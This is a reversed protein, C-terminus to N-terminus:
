IVMWSRLAQNTRAVFVATIACRRGSHAQKRRSGTGSLRSMKWSRCCSTKVDQMFEARLGEYADRRAEREEKDQQQLERLLQRREDASMSKLLEDKNM